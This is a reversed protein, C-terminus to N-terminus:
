EPSSAGEPPGPATGPPADVDTRPESLLIQRLMAARQRSQQAQEEFKTATRDNGRARVREAVRIALASREELARLATWLATELAESQEALLGNATYAHGVRCRFRVLEGDRIEWLAGGCDPCAFGSPTGPHDKDEIADLDLEAFESEIEMDDPMADEGNPDPEVEQRALEALLPPILAVPLVHDAPVAELANRPMSAFLADAPDQVVTVGGRRRVAVLGATGDDLTGSLVVGVVRRGYATAASRFLPDVAPRHGNERPGRSLRVRGKRILLHSDPPAVYIRGPQIAEGDDPHAAPLPGGRSLIAPLVSTVHAPVHLVVFVAAPLDAPLKGVLQTLAEVGGASAGVVIIDHGPM